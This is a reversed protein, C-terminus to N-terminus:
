SRSRTRNPSCYWPTLESSPKCPIRDYRTVVDDHSQTRTICQPRRPRHFCSGKSKRDAPVHGRECHLASSRLSDRSCAAVPVLGRMQDLLPLCQALGQRRDAGASAGPTVRVLEARRGARRNDVVGSMVRAVQEPARLCRAEATVMVLQTSEDATVGVMRFPDYWINPRHREWQEPRRQDPHVSIQQLLFDGPSGTTPTVVNDHSQTEVPANRIDHAPM